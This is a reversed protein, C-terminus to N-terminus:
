VDRLVEERIQKLERLIENGEELRDIDLVVGNHLYITTTTPANGTLKGRFDTAPYAVKLKNAPTIEYVIALRHGGSNGQRLGHTVCDGVKITQGLADTM